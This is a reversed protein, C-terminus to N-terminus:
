ILDYAQLIRRISQESIPGERDCTVILNVGQLIGEEMYDLYKEELNQKQRLDATAMYHEWYCRRRDKCITYAPWYIKQGLILPAKYRYELGCDLFTDALRRESVSAVMEGNQTKYAGKQLYQLRCEEELEEPVIGHSLLTQRAKVLWQRSNAMRKELLLKEQYQKKMKELDKRKVYSRSLKGNVPRRWYYYEKGRQLSRVLSGTPLKATEEEMRYVSLTVSKFKSQLQSLVEDM